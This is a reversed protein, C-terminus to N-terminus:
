SYSAIENFRIFNEGAFFLNGNTRFFNDWFAIVVTLETVSYGVFIVVVSLNERCDFIATM